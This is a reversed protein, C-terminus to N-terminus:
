NKKQALSESFAPDLDALILKLPQVANNQLNISWQYKKSHHRYSSVALSLNELSQIAALLSDYDRVTRVYDSLESYYRSIVEAEPKSANHDKYYHIIKDTMGNLHDSIKNITARDLDTLSIPNSPRIKASKEILTLNPRPNSIIVKLKALVEKELGYSWQYKKSSHRHRDTMKKLHEVYSIALNIDNRSRVTRIHKEIDSYYKALVKAEEYSANHDSYYHLIKDTMTQFYDALSSVMARDLESLYESQQCEFIFKGSDFKSNNYNQLITKNNSETVSIEEIHVLANKACDTLAQRDSLIIVKKYDERALHLQGLGVHIHGRLLLVNPDDSFKAALQEIHTAAKQYDRQNYADYALRYLQYFDDKKVSNVKVKKNGELDQLIDNAKKYREKAKNCIMKDIIKSLNKDILNETLYDRWVWEAEYTNFLSLPSINTLLHLCTVGLSYLDSAEIPRGSIQEPAVYEVSGILTATVGQNEETLKKAAGFDVLVLKQDKARRIINEPKIDRHIVPVQHIFDLVPLLDLLLQEIKAQNFVGIRALEQELNEGEIYEQVLYQQTEITFYALLSPIQDHHGLEDLRKAEEAFLQEAKALGDTGSVQPCFQKIVCRPKSPKDNDVALFTKGFGGQGILKVAQYREKLWLPKGCRQCFRYHDPNVALCQPNLCQTM